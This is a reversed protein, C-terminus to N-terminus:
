NIHLPFLLFFSPSSITSILAISSSPKVFQFLLDVKHFMGFHTGGKSDPKDLFVCAELPIPPKLLQYLEKKSKVILVLDNFFFLLVDLSNGTKRLFTFGKESIIERKGNGLKFKECVGNFDLNEDIFKIRFEADKSRVSDNVESTVEEIKFIISTVLTFDLSGPDIYTLLRKFLM